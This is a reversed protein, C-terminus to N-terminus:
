SRTFHYPVGTLPPPSLDRVIKNLSSIKEELLYNKKEAVKQRQETLELAKLLQANEVYLDKIMVDAKSNKLLQEKLQSVKEQLLMKVNRLMLEVERMREEMKLMVMEREDQMNFDPRLEDGRHQGRQDGPLRVPSQPLMGGLQVAEILQAELRAQKVKLTENERRLCEIERQAESSDCMKSKTSLLEKKVTDLERKLVAKEQEAAKVLCAQGQQKQQQKLSLVTLELQQVKDRAHQLDVQTNNIERQLRENERLLHQEKDLLQSLKDIFQKKQQKQYSSSHLAMELVQNKDNADQMQKHLSMVEQKLVEKEQQTVRLDSKLRANQVTISQLTSELAQVKEQARSLQAHLGQNHKEIVQKEHMLQALQCEVAGLKAIKEVCRNLEERLMDKEMKLKDTRSVATTFDEGNSLEDREDASSDDHHHLGRRRDTQQIVEGLQLSLGEMIAANEVNQQSLIINEDALQQGHHHVESIQRKLGEAKKQNGTKEKRFQELKQLMEEQTERLEGEKLASIKKRLIVNEETLRGAESRHAQMREHIRLSKVQLDALARRLKANQREFETCCEELDSVAQIKAELQSNLDLFTDESSSESSEVEQQPSLSMEDQKKLARVTKSLKSSEVRMRAIEDLLASQQSHVDQMIYMKSELVQVRKELKGNQEGLRFNESVCDDYRVKLDAFRLAQIELDKANEAVALLKAKLDTNEELAHQSIIIKQRNVELLAELEDTKQQLQCIHQRLTVTHDTATNYQKSLEPLLGTQDQVQLVREQLELIERICADREQFVEEDSGLVSSVHSGREQFGTNPPRSEAKDTKYDQVDEQHCSSEGEDSIIAVAGDASESNKSEEKTAHRINASDETSNHVETNVTGLSKDVTVNRIESLNNLRSVPETCGTVTGNFEVISCDRNDDEGANSSKANKDETNHYVEVSNGEAVYNEKRNDRDANDILVSCSSTFINDTVEASDTLEVHVMEVDCEVKSNYITNGNSIVGNTDDPIEQRNAEELSIMKVITDFVANHWLEEEDMEASVNIDVLSASSVDSRNDEETIVNPNICLENKGDKTSSHQKSGKDLEGDLMEEDNDTKASNANDVTASVGLRMKSFDASKVLNEIDKHSTGGLIDVDIDDTDEHGPIVVNDQFASHIAESTYDIVTNDVGPAGNEILASSIELERKNETSNSEVEAFVTDETGENSQVCFVNTDGMVDNEPVSINLGGVSGTEEDETQETNRDSKPLETELFAKDFDYCVEEAKASPPEKTSVGFNESERVVEDGYLDVVFTINSLDDIGRNLEAPLSEFKVTEEDTVENKALNRTLETLEAEMRQVRIILQSREALLEAREEERMKYLSLSEKLETLNGLLERRECDFDEAAQRLLQEVEKVKETLEERDALLEEREILHKETVELTESHQAELNFICSQLKAREEAFDEATQRLLQELQTVRRESQALLEDKADLNEQLRNHLENLQRSLEIERIQASSIYNELENQLEQNKTRLAEMEEKHGLELQKRESALEQYMSEKDLRVAEQLLKRQEEAEQIVAEMEAEWKARDESHRESLAQLETQYHQELNSVDTQFRKSVAEQDGSFRAEVEKIRQSFHSELEVREEAIDGRLKELLSSLREREESHKASLEQIAERHSEELRTKEEDLVEQLGRKMEEKEKDLREREEELRASLTREHQEELKSKEKECIEMFRREMEEELVKMKEREMALSNQLDAEHKEQLETKEQEWQETLRMEREQQEKQLRLLEEELVAQLTETNKEESQAREKEWEETLGRELESQEEEARCKEEELRVRLEEEHGKQLQQREREWEEILTKQADEREQIMRQREEELKAHLVEQHHLEMQRLQEARHQDLEEREQVFSKEAESLQEELVRLQEELEETRSKSEQRLLNIEEEHRKQLESLEEAQSRDLKDQEQEVQTLQTQFNHAQELAATVEERLMQMEKQHQQSLQSRQEESATRQEELRHHYESVSCRVKNTLETRVSELERLHQEKLQELMMEAELSMNFPQGEEFGLGQDSEMGPSKSELEDSLSPVLTTQPTKGLIHYEELQAQLEDIRDQLERCQEEYHSRLQRLRDEQLFFEASGPDLDGFKERLISDLNKQLKIVQNEAEVLRETSELLESELRGNEKITLTLHERLFTEDDRVKNMEAELEERQQNAQQQILDIEKTLEARVVALREKHDQELKRLNIDNMREIASHHDDVESALQSKLKETKELDSRIKEKERLELDVRELLHRIEAKFSALAAQHIGNKTILLENELAATLESLNVKGDLSFDLAKLIEPSNEIGEEMWADLVYEVPTYGTGDDLSSFLRMGITGTMASPTAIRRGTEDFPQMSHHRKLQRYPTSASPTPPKSQTLVYSVFEQVSMVGDGDLAQFADETVEIGLQQCLALLEQDTAQGNWPIALERCADQLREELRACHPVVSGRPTGPEDPNWLHLQGEAEYEEPCSVDANWRERKRPVTGDDSGEQPGNEEGEPGTPVATFDSLTETFEPTSRRGYRKSGRVFKPLVEPSDPPVSTEEGVPPEESANSLVLILANKFQDFDVRGTLQDQNQLLTSLLAPAVEELHLAQCLDALEEPCLSGVGSSDFSHFVEKLREEYQDQQGEDM